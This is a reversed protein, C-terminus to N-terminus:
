KSPPPPSQTRGPLGGPIGDMAKKLQAATADVKARFDAPLSDYPGASSDPDASTDSLSRMMMVRPNFMFRVSFNLQRAMRYKDYTPTPFSALQPDNPANRAFALSGPDLYATAGTQSNIGMAIPETKVTGLMFGDNPIGNPLVITRETKASLGGGSFMMPAGRGAQGAVTIFSTTVGTQAPPTDLQVTPGQMSNYVMDAVLATQESSLNMNSIQQGSAIANRQATSLTAYFRYMSYNGMALPMLYQDTASDNILRPYFIDFDNMGPVKNQAMAFNAVEDLRLSGQKDLTRLLNGLASRNITAARGSYPMSPSIVIWDGDQKTTLSHTPGMNALLQSATVDSAFQRTLSGFCYDPLLAVLNKNSQKALATMAEGPVFSLPDIKEPNLIKARLAPSIKINAGGSPSSSTAFVQGGGAVSVARFMIPGGGAGGGNGEFAKAMEKAEDSIKLPQQSGAPTATTVSRPLQLTYSGTAITDYKTDAALIDINLGGEFRRQVVVLGVGLGLRPDGVGMSPTGFGNFMMVRNNGDQPQGANYAATYAKQEQVFQNFANTGAGGLGRQVPTPNTSFVVRENQNIQALKVPDMSALLRAIARAAPTKEIPGSINIRGPGGREQMMQEMSRKTEDALKQAAAEDFKPQKAVGDTLKAIAAQIFSARAQLEAKEQAVSTSSERTLLYLGSQQIWKGNEAQAIRQMISDITQDTARIVFVEDKLNGAPEMNLGAAKGLAALAATARSAPIDVTIKKTLDQANAIVGIGLLIGILAIRNM